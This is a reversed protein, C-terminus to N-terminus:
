GAADLGALLRRPRGHGRVPLTEPMLRMMAPAAPPRRIETGSPRVVRGVLSRARSARNEETMDSSPPRSPARTSSRYAPDPAIPRSASERPASCARSTSDSRLAAATIRRLMSASPRGPATSAASRARRTSERPGEPPRYWRTTASGGYAAESSSTPATSAPSRSPPQSASSARTTSSREARPGSGAHGSPYVPVLPRLYPSAASQYP